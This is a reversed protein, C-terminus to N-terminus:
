RHGGRSASGRSERSEAQNVKIARGALERGNLESIAKDADGANTMEVFAFGRSRGTDRDTVVKVEVIEGLQGFLDRLELENTDFSLNGVFLRTSM